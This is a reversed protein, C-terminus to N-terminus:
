AHALPLANLLLHSAAGDGPTRVFGVSLRRSGAHPAWPAGSWSRDVDGAFVSPAVATLELEGRDRRLVLGDGAREITVDGDGLRRVYRGTLRDPDVRRVAGAPRAWSSPGASLEEFIEEVIAYRDQNLEPGRNDLWALGVGHRPALALKCWMGDYFGEHGVRDAGDAAPGVYLTLGYRLNIDLLLDVAPRHMEAVREAGLVGAGANLHLMGFRTMDAATSFCLSSPHHKTADRAEHVVRVGGRGDPVHHQALPYTMALASDHVTTAMGLPEFLATRMLEAFPTSTVRQAIYGAMSVGLNSYSYLLGPRAILPYRPAEQLMAAELGTPDRSLGDHLVADPVFGAQHSLLHRLTIAGSDSRGRVTFEPVYSDVVEDLDLMGEDALRCLLTGTLSKTVSYIRFVTDPTVPTPPGEVSTRGFGRAYIPGDGTFVSLALGPVHNDAMFRGIRSDLERSDLM